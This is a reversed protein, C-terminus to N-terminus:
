EIFDVLTNEHFKVIFGIGFKISQIHISSVAALQMRALLCNIRPLASGSYFTLHSGGVM